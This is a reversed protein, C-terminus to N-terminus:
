VEVMFVTIRFYLDLQRKYLKKTGLLGRSPSKKKFGAKPAARGTKPASYHAQRPLLIEYFDGEKANLAQCFEGNLFDYGSNPFFQEILYLNIFDLSIAKGKLAEHMATSRLLAAM